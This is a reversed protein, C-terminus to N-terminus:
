SQWGGFGEKESQGSIGNISTYPADARHMNCFPKMHTKLPKCHQSCSTGLRSNQGSSWGEITFGDWVGEHKERVGRRERVWIECRSCHSPSCM